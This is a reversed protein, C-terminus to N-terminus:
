GFIYLDKHIMQVLTIPLAKNLKFSQVRAVQSVFVIDYIHQNLMDLYPWVGTLVISFGLSMQFMTFYIVYVSRWRRRREQATELGDEPADRISGERVERGFLRKLWEM